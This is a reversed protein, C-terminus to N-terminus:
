EVLSQGKHLNMRYQRMESAAPSRKRCQLLGRIPQSDLGQKSDRIARRTTEAAVRWFDPFEQCRRRKRHPAEFGSRSQDAVLRLRPDCRRLRWQPLAIVPLM